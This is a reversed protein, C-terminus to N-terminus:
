EFEINLKKFGYVIAPLLILQVIIGPVAIMFSQTAFVEWTYNDGLIKFLIFATIGFALREILM